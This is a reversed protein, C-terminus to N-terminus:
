KEDSWLFMMVYQCCKSEAIVDKTVLHVHEVRQVVMAIWSVPYPSDTLFFCFPFTLFDFKWFSSEDDDNDYDSTMMM